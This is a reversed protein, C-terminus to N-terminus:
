RTQLSLRGSANLAKSATGISVEALRAVDRITPNRRPANDTASNPASDDTAAM